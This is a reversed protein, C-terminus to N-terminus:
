QEHQVLRDVEVVVSGGWTIGADDLLHQGVKALHIGVRGVAVVGKAPRRCRRWRSCAALLNCDRIPARGPSIKKVLPAVSLLLRAMRPGPVCLYTRALATADDRRGNLM